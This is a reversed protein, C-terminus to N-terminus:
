FEKFVKANKFKSELKIKISIEILEELLTAVEQTITLLMKREVSLSILTLYNDTSVQDLKM